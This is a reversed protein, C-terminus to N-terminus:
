NHMCRGGRLRRTSNRLSTVMRKRFKTPNRNRHTPLIVVRTTTMCLITHTFKMECPVARAIRPPSKRPCGIAGPRPRLMNWVWSISDSNSVREDIWHLAACYTCAIDMQGLHHRAAPERYPQRAPPLSHTAPLADIRSSRELRERERRQQQGLVRNNIAPPPVPSPQRSRVQNSPLPTQHREPVYTAPPTPLPAAIGTAHAQRERERRHRQAAVRRSVSPTPPPPTSATSPVHSAVSTQGIRERERRRRQALVRNNM